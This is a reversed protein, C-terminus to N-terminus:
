RRTTLREGVEFEAVGSRNKAVCRILGADTMKTNAILMTHFGSENVVVKHRDDQSLPQGNLQWRVDPAPRGSVRCNIRVQSGEMVELDSSTYLFKPALNQEEEDDDDHM